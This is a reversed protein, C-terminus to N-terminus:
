STIGLTAQLMQITQQINICFIGGALHALAKGLANQQGGGHGAFSNLILLGRIFAITGILQIISYSNNLLVSWQDTAATVYAYPTPTQWFSDLGVWVSNPLYLLALGVFFYIGPGKLSHETAMQTRSEGFHKLGMIAMLIFFMGMVYAIATTLRMLNPVNAALNNIMTTVDVNIAYAPSNWILITAAFASLFSRTLIARYDPSPLM